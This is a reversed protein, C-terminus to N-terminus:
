RKKFVPQRNSSDSIYDAIIKLTNDNYHLGDEIFGTESNTIEPVTTYKSANEKLLESSNVATRLQENFDKVVCDFEDASTNSRFGDFGILIVEPHYEKGEYELTMSAFTEAAEVAAAIADENNNGSFDCDNITAFFYITSGGCAKIQEQFCNEAETLLEDTMIQPQRGESYHGGWVAYVAFDERNTNEQFVGLQCCRSDGIVIRGSTYGPDEPLTHYYYPYDTVATHEKYETQQEAATEEPVSSEQVTSCGATLVAIILLVSATNKSFM